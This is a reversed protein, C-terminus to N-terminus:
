SGRSGSGEELIEHPWNQRAIKQLGLHDHPVQGIKVKPQQRLAGGQRFGCKELGVEGEQPHVQPHHKPYGQYKQPEDM